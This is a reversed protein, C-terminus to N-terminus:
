CPLQQLLEANMTLKVYTHLCHYLWVANIYKAYNFTATSVTIGQVTKVTKNDPTGLADCFRGITSGNIAPDWNTDQWGGLPSQHLTCDAGHM